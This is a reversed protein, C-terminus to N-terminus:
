IWKASASGLLFDLRLRRCRLHLKWSPDTFVYLAYGCPFAAPFLAPSDDYLEQLRATDCPPSSLFRVYEPASPPLHITPYRKSPPHALTTMAAEPHAYTM